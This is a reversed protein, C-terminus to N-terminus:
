PKAECDDLASLAKRLDGVTLKPAHNHSGMPRFLDADTEDAGIDRAAVMAFPRLADALAQAKPFNNAAHVIYAANAQRENLGDATYARAIADNGFPDEAGVPAIFSGGPNSFIGPMRMQERHEWPLPTGPQPASM